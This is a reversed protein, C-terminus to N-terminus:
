RANGIWNGSPDSISGNQNINGIWNCNADYVAGNRGVNGVWNGGTDSVSGNENINGMWTGGTSYYTKPTSTNGSSGTEAFSSQKSSLSAAPQKSKKISIGKPMSSNATFSLEWRIGAPNEKLTAEDFETLPQLRDVAKLSELAISHLDSHNGEETKINSISGDPNLLFSLRVKDYRSSNTNKLDLVRLRFSSSVIGEIKLQYSATKANQYSVQGIVSGIPHNFDPSAIADQPM